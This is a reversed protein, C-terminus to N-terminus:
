GLRGLDVFDAANVEGGTFAEIARITRWDPRVIRRRIRSVTPRTRAIARAVDDDSLKKAAMWDSLHMASIYTARVDCDLAFHVRNRKCLM